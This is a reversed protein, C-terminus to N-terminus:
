GPQPDPNPWGERQQSTAGLSQVLGSRLDPIESEVMCDDTVVHTKATAVTGVSEDLGRRQQDGRGVDLNM